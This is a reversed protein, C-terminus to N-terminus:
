EVNAYQPQSLQTSVILHKVSGRRLNEELLEVCYLLVNVKGMVTCPSPVHFATCVILVPLYLILKKPCFIQAMISLAVTMKFLELKNLCVCFLYQEHLRFKLCM